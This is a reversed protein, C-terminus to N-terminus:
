WGIGIRVGGVFMFGSGAFSIEDDLNIHQNDPNKEISYKMGTGLFLDIALHNDVILKFGMIGKVTISHIQQSWPDDSVRYYTLGNEMYDDWTLTSLERNIYRYGGGTSVYFGGWKKPAPYHRFFLELQGGKLNIEDYNGFVYSGRQGRYYVTPAIILWNNPSLRKDMEIRIGNQFLHQPVGMIYTNNQNASVPPENGQATFFNLAILLASIFILKNMHVTM